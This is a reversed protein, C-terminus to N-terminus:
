DLRTHCQRVEEGVRGQPYGDGEGEAVDGHCDDDGHQHHPQEAHLKLRNEGGGSGYIIYYHLSLVFVFSFSDHVSLRAYRYVYFLFCKIMLLQLLFLLTHSM